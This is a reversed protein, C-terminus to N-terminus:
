SSCSSAPNSAEGLKNLTVKKGGGGGVKKQKKKFKTKSEKM